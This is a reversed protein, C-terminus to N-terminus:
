KKYKTWISSVADIIYKIEDKSLGPYMPLSIVNKYYDEAVLFDNMKFDYRKSYYSHLHVPKYHVSTGIGHLNLKKIFENRTISWLEPVLRIVYLHLADKEINSVTNPCIIGNISNFYKNYSNFITIRKNHWKDLYNLQWIGFSAAVDTLNYKYGLESVDYEWKNGIKFRKWGDKSMGHLSLKRVKKALKANNTTLAGGEGATTINKNAYFSFAAANNTDGVKGDNSITELAHAGDELVFLNYKEAIFNISKMDVPKGAFHVVIIAKVSSDNKVISEIKNVDINFNEDCDVLIPEMGLYEGVEISAVFTYTPAIFKDGISYEKAALALHLAATCSNVAVVNKAELLISLQEEFKNVNPGTTLWGDRISQNFLETINKPM